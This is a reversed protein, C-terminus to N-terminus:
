NKRRRLVVPVDGKRRFYHKREPLLGGVVERHWCFGEEAFHRVFGANDLRDGDWDGVVTLNEITSGLLQRNKTTCEFFLGKTQHLVSGGAVFLRLEIDPM